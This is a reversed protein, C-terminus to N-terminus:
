PKQAIYIGALVVTSALIQIPEMSQALWMWGFLFAFIPEATQTVSVSSATTHKLASFTLAMPAFTGAVALWLLLAWLPLNVASLNGTLNTIQNFNFNWQTTLNIVFWFASSITMTYFMTSLPDRNNGFHQGMVFYTALLLAALFAFGIGPISLSSAQLQGIGALGALVLIVGFWFRKTPVTKFFVFSIIPVIVIATYEILLAIGVPLLSVANSYSWQMLALGFIGFLLLQPIERKELRLSKPNRILLWILCILASVASRISVLQSPMVGADVVM